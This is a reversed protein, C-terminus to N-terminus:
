VSEGLAQRAILACTERGLTWSGDPRAPAAIRELAERLRGNELELQVATIEHTVQDELRRTRYVDPHTERDLSDRCADTLQKHDM